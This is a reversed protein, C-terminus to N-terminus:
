VLKLRNEPASPWIPTNHRNLAALEDLWRAPRGQMSRQSPVTLMRDRRDSRRPAHVCPLVCVASCGLGSSRKTGGGDTPPGILYRTSSLPGAEAWFRYGSSVCSSIPRSSSSRAGAGPSSRTLLRAHGPPVADDGLGGFTLAEHTVDAPVPRPEVPTPQHGVHFGLEAHALGQIESVADLEDELALRRPLHRAGRWAHASRSPESARGRSRGPRRCGRSCPSPACPVLRRVGATRSGDRRRGSWTPRPTRLCRSPTGPLRWETRRPLCSERGSPERRRGPPQRAQGVPGGSRRRCTSRPAAPSGASSPNPGRSQLPSCRSRRPSSWSPATWPRPARPARRGCRSTRWRGSRISGRRGPWGRFPQRAVRSGAAGPAWFGASVRSNTSRPAM